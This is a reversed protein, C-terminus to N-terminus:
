EKFCKRMILLLDSDKTRLNFFEYKYIPHKLYRNILYYHNKLPLTNNFKLNNFKYNLFNQGPIDQFTINIKKFENSNLYINTDSLSSKIQNINSNSLIEFKEKQFNLSVFRKLNGTNFGIAKYIKKAVENCGVTGIMEYNTNNEVFKLMKLGSLPSPSITKWNTLWITNEFDEKNNTFNKTELFGLCGLILNQNDVDVVFNVNKNRCFSWKFFELDKDLISSRVNKKLFEQLNQIESYELFRISM